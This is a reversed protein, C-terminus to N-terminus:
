LYIPEYHVQYACAVATGGCSVQLRNSMPKLWPFDVWVTRDMCPVGGMTITKTLGDIVVDGTISGSIQWVQNELQVRLGSASAPLRDAFITLRCDTRPMTSICVPYDETIGQQDVPDGHRVVRFSYVMSVLWDKEMPKREIRELVGRYSNGDGPIIEVTERGLFLRDFEPVRDGVLYPPHRIFDISCHLLRDARDNQLVQMASHGAGKVVTLVPQCSEAQISVPCAGFSRLSQGHYSGSYGSGEELYILEWEITWVCSEPGCATMTGPRLVNLELPIQGDELQPLRTRAWLTVARVLQANDYQTRLEGGFGRRLLLRLAFRRLASGDLYVKVTDQCPLADLAMAGVTDPLAGLEMRNMLAPCSQFYDRLHEMMRM